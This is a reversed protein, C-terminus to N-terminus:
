AFGHESLFEQTINGGTKGVSKLVWKGILDTEINVKDGPKRTGLTTVALTHPILAVSFSGEAVDALTLSIGDIAISGKFLMMDTLKPDAKFSMRLEGPTESTDTVTAVGAIHGTVFHGGMRDTPRLSPELNVPSGESLEGLTSFSLTEGMVDFTLVGSSNDNVTLCVGNTCISDGIAADDAVPGADVSLTMKGASKRAATVRGLHQVIGTFM